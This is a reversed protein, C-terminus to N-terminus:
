RIIDLNGTPAIGFMNCLKRVEKESVKDVALMYQPHFGPSVQALSRLTRVGYVQNEGNEDTRGYIEEALKVPDLFSVKTYVVAPTNFFNGPQAVEATVKKWDINGTKKNVLGDIVFRSIGEMGEKTLFYRDGNKVRFDNNRLRRVVENNIGGTETPMDRTIANERNEDVPESHNFFLAVTSVGQQNIEYCCGEFDAYVSKFLESVLSCFESSSIFQTSQIPNFQENVEVEINFKEAPKTEDTKNGM